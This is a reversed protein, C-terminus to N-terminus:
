RRVAQVTLLIDDVDCCGILPRAELAHIAYTQTGSINGNRDVGLLYAYNSASSIGVVIWAVTPRGGQAPYVNGVKPTYDISGQPLASLDAKM